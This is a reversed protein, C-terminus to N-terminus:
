GALLALVFTSGAGPQSTVTLSGGNKAAMEAAQPLGIDTGKEKATGTTSTNNQMSFLTAIKAADM